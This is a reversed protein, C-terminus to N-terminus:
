VAIVKENVLEKFAISFNNLTEDEFANLDGPFLREITKEIAEDVNCRFVTMVHSLYASFYEKSLVSGRNIKM